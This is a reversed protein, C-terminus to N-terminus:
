WGLRHRVWGLLEVVAADPLESSTAADSASYTAMAQKILMHFQSPIKALAWHGGEAKSLVRQESVAALIRCANLVTYVASANGVRQSWEYDSRLSDVYDSWPVAVPLTAIPAGYLCAGRTALVTFHAALDIDVGETSPLSGASATIQTYYDRHIESFHLDYPAPHRWPTLQAYHLLSIEVPHPAGSRGLLTRLVARRQADTLPTATIVLLDIDSSAPNFCGMALSGHLYVGTLIAATDECLESTIQDLQAFTTAPATQRRQEISPQFASCPNRM